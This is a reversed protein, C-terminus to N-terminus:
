INLVFVSKFKKHNETSSTSKNFRNIFSSCGSNRDGFLFIDLIPLDKGANAQCEM